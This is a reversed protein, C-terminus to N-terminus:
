LTSYFAIKTLPLEKNYRIMTKIEKHSILQLKPAHHQADWINRIVRHIIQEIEKVRFTVQKQEAIEGCRPAVNKDLLERYITTLTRAEALSLSPYKGLTM